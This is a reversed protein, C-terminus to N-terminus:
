VDIVISIIIIYLSTYFYIPHPATQPAEDGTASIQLSAYNSNILRNWCTVGLLNKHGM